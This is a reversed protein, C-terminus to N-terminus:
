RQQDFDKHYRNLLEQPDNKMVYLKGRLKKTEGAKLGGIRPDSHICVFIGQFLEQYHDWATAMLYKNDDSYCGMLGNVPQDPSIPRPNVDDLNVGAPVYVQGGRYVAEETRRTKDLTTLGRNTYIFCRQIYNEQNRKTFQDVRICPQFWDMDVAQNYNNKLELKFDVEDEGARIEHLVETAPAVVTRLRILKGDEDASVLETKHPITTQDWIRKTSGTKCFAELYLIDMQKGPLHKGSITLINDKWHIKMGDSPRCSPFCYVLVALYLISPIFYKM